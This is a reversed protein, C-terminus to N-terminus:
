GRKSRGSLRAFTDKVTPKPRIVTRTATALSCSGSRQTNRSRANGTGTDRPVVGKAAKSSTSSQKSKASPRSSVPSPQQCPKAGLYTLIHRITDDGTVTFVHVKVDFGAQVIMSFTLRWPKNNHRWLIAWPRGKSQERCKAVFKKMLENHLDLGQERKVELFIGGLSDGTVDEDGFTGTRQATRYCGPFGISALYKAAEREGAKGKQCANIRRPM